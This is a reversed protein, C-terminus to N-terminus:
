VAVVCIIKAHEPIVFISCLSNVNKIIFALFYFLIFLIITVYEFMALSSLNFILCLFFNFHLQSHHHVGTIGVNLVNLLVLGKPPWGSYTHPGQNLYEAMCFRLIFLLICNRHQEESVQKNNTKHSLDLLSRMSSLSSLSWSWFNSYFSVFIIVDLLIYKWM